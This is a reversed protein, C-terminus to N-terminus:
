IDKLLDRGLLLNVDDIYEIITLALIRCYLIKEYKRKTLVTKGLLINLDTHVITSFLCINFLNNYITLNLKNFLEFERNIIRISRESLSLVKYSLSNIKKDKRQNLLVKKSKSRM